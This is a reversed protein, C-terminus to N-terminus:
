KLCLVMGPDSLDGESAAMLGVQAIVEGPITLENGTIKVRRTIDVPTDSALDQSLVKVKGLPEAYVLTLSSYRGFIGVKAGRSSVNVKVPVEKLVFERGLSRGVTAVAVDGGPYTSCLVIPREPSSDGVEPLPMRRSVRAPAQARVISGIEHGIWSENEHYEWGDHVRATDVQCNGDVGFPPAIRHWRVARVIEDTRCKLNRGVAPFAYDSKGSPLNGAFPHRMIGIACGLAAAVYAEDECNIIGMAGPDHVHHLLRAVRDVTVTQATINEVDYTRYTDSFRINGEGMANEIILHPAYLRGLSTIKERFGEKTADRGWDLKWYRVGGAEAEELREKWFEDDSVGAFNDGKQACIWGGLGKWGLARVSDSLARLRGVPSGRFSPFRTTDLQVTGFYPNGNRYNADQPIDWSDDMVFFLDGRISPYLSTWGEFPADSFLSRENMMRRFEESPGLDSLYGQLNWTCLYDPAQSPTSPVLSECEDRGCSSLILVATILSFLLPHRM